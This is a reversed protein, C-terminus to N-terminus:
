LYDRLAVLNKHLHEWIFPSLPFHDSDFGIFHLLYYDLVEKNYNLSSKTFDFDDLEDEFIVNTKKSIDPMKHIRRYYFSFRDPWIMNFITYKNTTHTDTIEERVTIRELEPKFVIYDSVLLNNPSSELQQNFTTFLKKGIQSSKFRYKSNVIALSASLNLVFSSLIFRLLEVDSFQCRAFFERNGKVGPLAIIKLYHVVDQIKKDSYGTINNLFGM